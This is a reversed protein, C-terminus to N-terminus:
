VPQFGGYDRIWLYRLGHLIQRVLSEGSLTKCDQQLYWSGMIKWEGDLIHQRIRGFLDPAYTEICAYLYAENHCFVYDFRDMLHEASEFTSIAAAIGEHWEWQWVPDLHANCILHLEKM